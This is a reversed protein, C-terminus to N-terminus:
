ELVTTRPPDVRTRLAVLREVERSVDPIPDRGLLGDVVRVGAGLAAIAVLDDDYEVGVRFTRPGDLAFDWATSGGLERPSGSLATLELAVHELLHPTQTDALEEAIGRADGCDCRHRALGPLLAIAAAGLGPVAGTRLPADGAVRVLAIVRTETVEIRELALASV